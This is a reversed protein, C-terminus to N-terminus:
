STSDRNWTADAASTMSFLSGVKAPQELVPKARALMGLGGATGARGYIELGQYLDPDLSKTILPVVIAGMKRAVIGWGYIAAPREGSPTLLDLRPNVADFADSRLAALGSINPFLFACCGIMDFPYSGNGRKYIGWLCDQNHRQVKQMAALEATKDGIESRILRHLTPVDAETARWVWIPTGDSLMGENILSADFLPKSLDIAGM